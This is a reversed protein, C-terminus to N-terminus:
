AATYQEKVVITLNMGIGDNMLWKARIIIIAHATILTFISFLVVNIPMITDAHCLIHAFTM